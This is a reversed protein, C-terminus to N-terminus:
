VGCYLSLLSKVDPEASALFKKLCKRFYKSVHADKKCLKKEKVVKELGKTIAKIEEALIKLQIKSAPELSGLEKSFDLLEPQKDALVKCLYHMLTMKNNRTYTENLKPLSDLRFGAAAGRATGQNLANGLSLITQMIVRLKVSSTIDHMSNRLDSVMLEPVPTKVKSLMIECNYARRHEILSVKEPRNPAKTKAKSAKESNPNSASFLTELESMDIEPARAAEGSKEAVAWLSWQGVKYIKSWLLPKLNKARKRGGGWGAGGFLYPPPPPPPLPVPVAAGSKKAVALLSRQEIKNIKSWLLPKLVKERKSGGGWGAGGFLYPPPLPPPPPVAAGGEKNRNASSAPPPSPPGWKHPPPPPPPPKLAPSPPPLGGSGPLPPPFPGAPPVSAPVPPLSSLDVPVKSATADM